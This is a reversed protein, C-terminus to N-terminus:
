SMIYDWLITYTYNSSQFGRQDMMNYVIYKLEYINYSVWIIQNFLDNYVLSNMSM